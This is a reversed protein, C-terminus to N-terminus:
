QNNLWFSFWSTALIIGSDYSTLKIKTDVGGVQHVPGKASHTFEPLRNMQPRLLFTIEAM